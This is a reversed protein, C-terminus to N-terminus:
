RWSPRVTLLRPRAARHARRQAARGPDAGRRGAPPIQAAATQGEALALGQGENSRGSSSRRTSRARCTRPWSERRLQRPDPRDYRRGGRHGVAPRGQVVGRPRAPHGRRRRGDRRRSRTRRGRRRARGGPHAAGRRRAGPLEDVDTPISSGPPVVVVTELPRRFGNYGFGFLAMILFPGFVLSVLAGPRRLVEILEKGVIALLRQVM